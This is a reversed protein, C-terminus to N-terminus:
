QCPVKRWATCVRRYGRDPCRKRERRRKERCPDRAEETKPAPARNTLELRGISSAPSEVGLRRRGTLPRRPTAGTGISRRPTQRPSPRSAPRASPRATTQPQPSGIFSQVLGGPAARPASVIVPSLVTSQNFSPLPPGVVFPPPGYTKAPPGVIPGGLASELGRVLYPTAIEAIDYIRGYVNGKRALKFLKRLPGPKRVPVDKPKRVPKAERRREPRRAPRKAPPKRRPRRRQPQTAPKPQAAAAYYQGYGLRTASVIVPSLVASM